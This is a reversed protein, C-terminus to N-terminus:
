SFKAKFMELCRRLEEVTRAKAYIFQDPRIIVYKVQSGGLLREFHSADYLPRSPYGTLLDRSAPFSVPRPGVSHEIGPSTSSVFCVISQKSLLETSINYESLISELEQHEDVHADNSPSLSVMLTFITPVRSLVFDSLEIKAPKSNESHTQLYIQALKSGGDFKALFTGDACAKYGRTVAQAEPSPRGLISSLGLVLKMIPVLIRMKFTPRNNCLKGNILTFKASNDIGLRREAAWSQLVSNQLASSGNMRILLALRWALNEADEIGSVIGQGGFPPFVHAADGILVARNDFWKNVVRHNFRFPRCRLVEICDRPFIVQIPGNSKTMVTRTIMPTLNEWFLEDADMSDEWDPVALEHRWLYESASGIRGCAVPRGPPRCFHWEPPWFLDYVAQPDQGNQWFPLDPHSQPTPLTIKLNGAIWIGDYEFIGKEQRIGASPELFNKRVVGRKGDAGVLWSARIEQKVREGDLYQVIVSDANEERGIVECSTQLTCFPSGEILERLYFELCNRTNAM